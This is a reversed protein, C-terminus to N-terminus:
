KVYLMCNAIVLWLVFSWTPAQLLTMNWFRSPKALGTKCRCTHLVWGWRHGFGTPDCGLSHEKAFTPYSIWCKLNFPSPHCTTFHQIMRLNWTSSPRNVGLLHCFKGFPPEASLHHCVLGICTAGDLRILRHSYINAYNSQYNQMSWNISKTVRFEMLGPPFSLKEYELAGKDNSLGGHQASLKNATPVDKCFGHSIVLTGNMGSSELSEHRRSLRGPGRPKLHRTTGGIGPHVVDSPLSSPM